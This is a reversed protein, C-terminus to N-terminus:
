GDDERHDAILKWRPRGPTGGSPDIEEWAAMVVFRNLSEMKRAIAKRVKRVAALLSTAEVQRQHRSAVPRTISKSALYYGVGYRYYSIAYRPM